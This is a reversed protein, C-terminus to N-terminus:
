DDTSNDHTKGEKLKDKLSSIYMFLLFIIWGEAHAACWLLEIIYNEIDM